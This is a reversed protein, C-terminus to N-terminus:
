LRFSLRVSTGNAASLVEVVDCVLKVIALGRGGVADAAPMQNAFRLSHAPAADAVECVLQGDDVWLQIRGGGDTHQLTNTALESVALTLMEAREPALGSATAGATVFARVASLDNAHAYTFTRPGPTDTPETM